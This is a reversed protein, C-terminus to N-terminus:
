TPDGAQKVRAPISREGRLMAAAVRHHGDAIYLRSGDQVVYIDGGKRSKAYREARAEDLYHGRNTAILRGVPVKRRPARRWQSETWGRGSVPMGNHSTSFWSM